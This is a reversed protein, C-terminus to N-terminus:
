QSIIVLGETRDAVAIHTASAAVGIPQTLSAPISSQVEQTNPNILTVSDQTIGVVYLLNGDTTINTPEFSLAITSLANNNELDIVQVGQSAFHAVYVFNNLFESESPFNAPAFPPGFGGTYPQPDLVVVEPIETVVGNGNLAVIQLGWNAAAGIDQTYFATAGAVTGTIHVDPNGVV